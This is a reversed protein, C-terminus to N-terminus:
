VTKLYALDEAICKWLDGQYDYEREVIYAKTGQADCISKLAAWDIIGKGTPGNAEDGARNMEKLWDPLIPWGKEDKPFDAWNVPPTVGVVNVCEKAHILEVRGAHKQVYQLVDIGACAAWGADLEMIVTEPDTNEMLIDMCYKGDFVNFEQTHNHYGFKLGAAKCQAGIENLRAAVKLTSATDTMHASPCILYSGGIGAMMEIHPTPDDLGVHTSIAELGIEALFDKMEAPTLGGYGAAFEVGAYGVDALRKMTGRFDKLYDQIVSYTQIYVKDM